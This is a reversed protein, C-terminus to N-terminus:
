QQRQGSSSKSDKAASGRPRAGRPQAEALGQSSALAAPPPLASGDSAAGKIFLPWGTPPHLMLLQEMDTGEGGNGKEVM